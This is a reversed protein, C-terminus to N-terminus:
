DYYVVWARWLGFEGQCFGEVPSGGYRAAARGALKRAHEWAASETPFPRLDRAISYLATPDPEPQGLPLTGGKNDAGRHHVWWGGLHPSPRIYIYVAKM